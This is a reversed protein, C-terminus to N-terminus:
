NGAFSSGIVGVALEAWVLLFLILLALLLGFRFKPIVKNLIFNIAIGLSFLLVGAIVFDSLSWAVENSFQMGVFPVLLLVLPALIILLQKKQLTM